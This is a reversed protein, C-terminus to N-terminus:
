LMHWLSLNAIGWLLTEMTVMALKSTIIIIFNRLYVQESFEDAFNVYNELEQWFETKMAQLQSMDEIWQYTSTIFM